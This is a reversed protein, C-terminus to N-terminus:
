IVYLQVDKKQLHISKSATTMYMILVQRKYSPFSSILTKVMLDYGFKDRDELLGSILFIDAKPDVARIPKSCEYQIKKLVKEENFNKPHDRKENALDLNIKSRVFFFSKGSKNM